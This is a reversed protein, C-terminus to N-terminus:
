SQVQPQGPLPLQVQKRPARPTQRKTTVTPTENNGNERVDTYSSLQRLDGESEHVSALGEQDRLLGHDELGQTGKCCGPDVAVEQCPRESEQECSHRVQEQDLGECDLWWRNERQQWGM